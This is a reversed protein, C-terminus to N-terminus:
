EINQVQERLREIVTKCQVVSQTVETIQSKSGITNVERLLEQTYFDLKKGEVDSKSILDKYNKLHEGLRHIEETIDAKDIQIVVEQMLRQPDVDVGQLRTQIKSLYKKELTENVQERLQRIGEVHSELEKLHQALISKLAAGERVRESLCHSLTQTFLDMLEQHEDAGVEPASEVQLVDPLRIYSELSVQPKVKLKKGLDKFVKQYATVAKLNIALDASKELNWKRNVYIDVTGRKIQTQLKKKLENEFVIFERPLHFRPELFRGNVSRITVELSLSGRGKELIKQATGFGTMSKM